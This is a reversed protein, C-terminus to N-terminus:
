RQALGGVLRETENNANQQMDSFAHRQRRPSSAVSGNRVGESVVKPHL